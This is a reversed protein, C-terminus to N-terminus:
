KSAKAYGPKILLGLCLISLGLLDILESIWIYGIAALPNKIFQGVLAIAGGLCMVLGHVDPLRKMFWALLFTALFGFYVVLLFPMSFSRVLDETPAIALAILFMTAYLIILINGIYQKEIFWILVTAYLVFLMGMGLIGARFKFFILDYYAFGSDFIADIAEGSAICFFGLAFLFPTDTLFRRESRRWRYLLVGGSAAVVICKFIEVIWLPDPSPFTM